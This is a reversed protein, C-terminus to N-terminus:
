EVVGLAIKDKEKVRKDMENKVIELKSRSNYAVEEVEKMVRETDCEFDKQNFYSLFDLASEKEMDVLDELETIFIELFEKKSEILKILSEVKDDVVFKKGNYINAKNGRMNSIFYNWNEPHNINFHIMKIFKYLLNRAPKIIKKIAESDVYDYNEKGFPRLNDLIININNVSNDNTINNTTNNQITINQQRKEEKMIELEESLKVVMIRLDKDTIKEINKIKDLIGTKCNKEHTWKSQRSSLEKNCKKCIFKKEKKIYLEELLFDRKIDELKAKCEKKSNLHNKLNNKFNTEYGCRKCIYKLNSMKLNYKNIIKLYNKNKLKKTM